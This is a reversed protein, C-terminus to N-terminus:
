QRHQQNMPCWASNKTFHLNHSCILGAASHTWDFCKQNNEKCNATQAKSVAWIHLLSTQPQGAVPSSGDGVVFRLVAYCLPIIGIWGSKHQKTGSFPIDTGLLHPLAVPLSLAVTALASLRTPVLQQCGNGPHSVQCINWSVEFAGSLLSFQGKSAQAAYCIIEPAGLHNAANQM